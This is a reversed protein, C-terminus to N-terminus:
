FYFLLKLRLGAPNESGSSVFFLEEPRVMRLSFCLGECSSEDQPIVTLVGFPCDVRCPLLLPYASM